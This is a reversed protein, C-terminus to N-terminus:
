AYMKEGLDTMFEPRGVIPSMPQLAAYHSRLGICDSTIRYLILSPIERELAM